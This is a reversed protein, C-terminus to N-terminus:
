QKLKEDLQAFVTAGPIATTEAANYRRIRERIERDWAIEHENGKAPEVSSLIRHALTFRQDLPLRSAEQALEELSQMNFEVIAAANSCCMEMTLM